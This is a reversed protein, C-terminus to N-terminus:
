SRGDKAPWVTVIPGSANRLAHRYVILMPAFQNAGWGVSFMAFAITMWARSGPRTVTTAAM